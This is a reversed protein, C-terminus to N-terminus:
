RVKFRIEKRGTRRIEMEAQELQGFDREDAGLLVKIFAKNSSVDAEASCRACYGRDVPPKRDGNGISVVTKPFPEPKGCINCKPVPLMKSKTDRCLDRISRLIGPEFSRHVAVFQFSERLVDEITDLIRLGADGVQVVYSMLRGRSLQRVEVHAQLERFLEEIERRDARGRTEVLFVARLGAPRPRLRIESVAEVAVPM